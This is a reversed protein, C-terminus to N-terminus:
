LVARLGIKKKIAHLGDLWVRAAKKNKRAKEREEAKSHEGRATLPRPRYCHDAEDNLVIINKKNGLGRFVQHIMEGEHRASFPPRAAERGPLCRRPLTSRGPVEERRVFAHYNTILITAQNLAFLQDPSM